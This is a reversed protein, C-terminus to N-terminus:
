AAAMLPKWRAVDVSFRPREIRTRVLAFGLAAALAAGALYIGAVTEIGAGALLAGIGAAATLWRQALLVVAVFELREYSQFVAFCTSSLLDATLGLGLLLTVTLAQASMGTAAAIALALLLVPLAIVVRLAMTNAFYDELRRHDRAVERTLISDQGFSGLTTALGAFALSYSYVGFRSDGVKRALVVYLATSAIKAGIDAIARFATNALIRGGGRSEM